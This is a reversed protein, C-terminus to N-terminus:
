VAGTATGITLGTVTVARLVDRGLMMPEEDSFTTLATGVSVDTEGDGIGIPLKVPVKVPEPKADFASTSISPTRAVEVKTDAVRSVTVPVAAFAPVRVNETLCPPVFGTVLLTMETDTTAGVMATATVGVDADTASPAVCAKEAATLPVVLVATVHDTFPTVPPEIAVPM